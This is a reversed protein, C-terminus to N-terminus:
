FHSLSMIFAARGKPLNRHEWVETYALACIERGFRRCSTETWGFERLNLHGLTEHSRKQRSCQHGANRECEATAIGDGTDAFVNLLAACRDFVLGVLLPLWGGAFGPANPIHAARLPQFPDSVRGRM